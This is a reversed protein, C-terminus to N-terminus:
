VKELPLLYQMASGLRTRGSFHYIQAVIQEEIHCGIKSTSVVSSILCKLINNFNRNSIEPLM